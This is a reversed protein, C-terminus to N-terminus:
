NNTYVSLAVLFLVVIIFSIKSPRGDGIMFFLASSVVCASLEM